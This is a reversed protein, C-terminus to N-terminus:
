LQGPAVFADIAFRVLSESTTGVGDIPGLHDGGTGVELVSTGDVEGFEPGRSRTDGVILFFFTSDDVLSYDPKLRLYSALWTAIWPGFGPLPLWLDVSLRLGDSVSIVALLGSGRDTTHTRPSWSSM